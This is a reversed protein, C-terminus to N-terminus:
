FSIECVPGLRDNKEKVKLCNKREWLSIQVMETYSRSIDCFAIWWVLGVRVKVIEIGISLSNRWRSSINKRWRTVLSREAITERSGWWGMLTGRERTLTEM